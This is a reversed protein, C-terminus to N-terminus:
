EYVEIAVEPCMMVCNLCGRCEREEDVFLVPHMGQANTEKTLQLLGKPCFRVCLQCGQCRDVHIKLKAM